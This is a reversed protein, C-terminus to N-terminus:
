LRGHSLSVTQSLWHTYVLTGYLPSFKALYSGSRHNRSCVQRNWLCKRDWWPTNGSQRNDGQIFSHVYCCLLLRMGLGEGLKRHMAQLIIFQLHHVALSPFSPLPRPVLSACFIWVVCGDDACHLWLDVHHVSSACSIRFKVSCYHLISILYM